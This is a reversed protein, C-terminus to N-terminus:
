NGGAPGCCRFGFYAYVGTPPGAGRFATRAFSADNFFDGGRGARYTSTCGGGDDPVPLTDEWSAGGSPAGDYGEHYCDEVWEWVNGAMHLAGHASAGAESSGGNPTEWVSITSGDCPEFAAVDCTPEDDGWPFKRMYARCGSGIDPAGNLACSGRAAYEWEAETCLSWGPAWAECWARSSCWDVGAAPQDGTGTSDPDLVGECNPQPNAEYQASTVETRLVAFGEAFTVARMPGEIEATKCTDSPNGADCGMWFTGPPVWVELGDASVCWGPDECSFGLSEPCPFGLAGCNPSGACVGQSCVDDSTTPDGDDCAAGDATPIPVLTCEGVSCVGEACVGGLGSCDVPVGDLCGAAPSCTEVGNCPDSDDCTLPTGEVCGTEPSCTEVGNCADSDDCTLPTGEVCGTEPSCTEVGNCADSDDCETAPWSCGSQEDCLDQTCPDGDNCDEPLYQCVGSSCTDTTCPDQDDCVVDVSTCDGSVEDCADITCPDGDSCDVPVDSTCGGADHDCDDIWCPDGDDCEAPIPEPCGNPDCTGYDLCLDPGSCDVPAGPACTGDFCADPETCPDGDDCPISVSWAGCGLEDAECLQFAGEDACQAPTEDPVCPQDICPDGILTDDTDPAASGDGPELLDGSEADTPAGGDDSPVGAPVDDADSPVGAPADDADSPVDAPADDTDDADSSVDAPADDADSPIDATDESGEIVADGSAVADTEIDSADDSSTGGDVADPISVDTPPDPGASDIDSADEDPSAPSSTDASGDLASPVGADM